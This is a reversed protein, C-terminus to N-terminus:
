LGIHSANGLLAYKLVANEVDRRLKVHKSPVIIQYFGCKYKELVRVNSLYFEQSSPTHSSSTHLVFTSQDSFRNILTLIFYDGPIKLPM